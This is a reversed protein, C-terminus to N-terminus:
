TKPEKGRVYLKISHFSYEIPKLFPSYPPLFEISILKSNRFDARLKDFQERCHIPANDMIIISEPPLRSALPSLFLCFDDSGVGKSKTGDANLLKYYVLGEESLAGILTM